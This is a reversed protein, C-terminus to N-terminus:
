RDRLAAVITTLVGDMNELVENNWYRLVLYGNAELWATREDDRRQRLTEGHQGGDWEIILREDFCAFDVLRWGRM